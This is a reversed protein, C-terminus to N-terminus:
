TGSGSPTALARTDVRVERLEADLAEIVERVRPNAKAETRVRAELASRQEHSLVSRGPPLPAAVEILVGVASLNVIAVEHGPAV